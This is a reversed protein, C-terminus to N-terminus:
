RPTVLFSADDFFLTGAATGSAFTVGFSLGYSTPSSMLLPLPMNVVSVGDVLLEYTSGPSTGEPRVSLTLDYRHWGPSIASENNPLNCDGADCKNPDLRVLGKKFTVSLNRDGAANTVQFRPGLVVGDTTLNVFASFGIVADYAAPGSKLNYDLRAVQGAGNSLITALLGGTGDVGVSSLRNLTAGGMVKQGPWARPLAADDDFSDCFANRPCTGGDGSTETLLADSPAADAASETAGFSGCAVIMAMGSAFAALSVLLLTPRGAVRAM